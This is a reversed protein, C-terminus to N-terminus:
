IVLIGAMVIVGHLLNGVKKADKESDEKKEEKDM